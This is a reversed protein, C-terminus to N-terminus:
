YNIREFCFYLRCVAFCLFENYLIHLRADPLPVIFSRLKMSWAQLPGHANRAYTKALGNLVERRTASLSDYKIVAVRAVCMACSNARRKLILIKMGRAVYLVDRWERNTDHSKFALRCFNIHRAAHM